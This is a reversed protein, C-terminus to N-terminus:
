KRPCRSQCEEQTSFRNTNGLCGGYVFKECQQSITNFFFYEHKGSCPGQVKPLTCADQHNGCAAKCSQENDFRNGTGECGGYHFRNCTGDAKNYYWKTVFNTCPGTDKSEDCISTAGESADGASADHQRVCTAECDSRSAFRNANGSCGSYKFEVCSGTAMEYYWSDFSGQCKGVDLPLHCVQRSKVHSHPQVAHAPQQHPVVPPPPRVMEQEHPHPQQQHQHEHGQHVPGAQHGAHVAAVTPNLFGCRQMCEEETRFRNLNGGCGGYIFTQCTGKYADYYYQDSYDQCPGSDQTSRCVEEITPMPQRPRPDVRPAPVEDVVPHAVVEHGIEPIEPQIFPQPQTPPPQTTPIEFPGVDKCFTSCEEWSAFNNANGHCGRWWFAACQKTNYDYWYRAQPVDCRLPGEVKPLYCRGIGPPEVCITECQEKTAFRNDNGDCGGYWFQSCRGETTDYYWVLKYGSSCVTGQDQPLACSSIKSPAVTGGLLFPALTTSPCGAYDPGIAKSEGDPCCGYRHTAENERILGKTLMDATMADMMEQDLLPQKGMLVADMDHTSVHAAKKTHDELRRKAMPVADSNVKRAAIQVDMSAPEKLRHRAMPVAVTNPMCAVAGKMIIVRRSVKATQAAAMDLDSKTTLCNEGCGTGNPGLAATEGDSCCGFSSLECPFSSRECGAYHPGFAITKRDKCCGYLSGACTPEGCGELNPGRALTVDDHCCGYETENCVGLVFVPCGANNPGEAATFWDPCCGFESKSCHMTANTDTGNGFLDDVDTVTANAVACDVTAMEGQENTVQCETPKADQDGSGEEEKGEELNLPSEVFEECGMGNKGTAETYNDACCGFESLTCNSCGQNFDGTAFTTNDPCCGFESDFCTPCPDVNCEQTLVPMTAEDCWEPVPKKDYNLCVAVREQSGGGCEASCPSWPGSYWTGTCKEENTCNTKDEPKEGSCLGEDVITIDGEEHIACIVRRTKHGHGCETSCKSWQSATWEYICPQQTACARTDSPIEKEEETLCKELPYARGMNDKCTVERTEETDNCKSCLKWESTFFKLGECPGLNCSRQSEVTKEPDCADAPLLKGEEGEKESRCTVSRYQFADGCKESCASWPGAQWEPCSFWEPVPKKDYNLCVAVREQSGGGCRNCVQRVSPRESTCNGDEVTVRRGNAYVQHCYVVRYQEGQDGCTQSCPEWDGEFWEAECDVTECAKEFEPKTYNANDCLADNVRRQTKTDICYPTRTQVGKGCTVSCSSWEGPKYMYDVDEVLPISFEYKIAADRNGKRFLVSVTVDEKLPGKAIIREPKSDDYEFYVGNLEVDREVQIMSNGNLFFHDTSNKLALNNSSPRAEEIKIATAGAPLRMVDHYGPSLNREDFTGEITKCKSGDGDCVGCKDVKLASGLKGDCGVPLCVGDVCIDDGKADCKTGDVVKEDWKYYFNGGEPKCLLECKNKGKYPQWKHYHGDLADDNHKACQEARFDTGDPCPDLNCSVYRVSPGTCDGKYIVYSEAHLCKHSMALM